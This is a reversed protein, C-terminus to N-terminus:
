PASPRAPPVEDELSAPEGISGLDSIEGFHEAIEDITPPTASFWGESVVTAVRWYHGALHPIAWRQAPLASETH